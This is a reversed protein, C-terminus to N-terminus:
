DPCSGAGRDQPLCFMPVRELYSLTKLGTPSNAAQTRGSEQGMWLVEPKRHDQWMRIQPNSSPWLGLFVFPAPSELESCISHLLGFFWKVLGGRGLAVNVTFLSIFYPLKLTLIKEGMTGQLRVGLLLSQPGAAAAEAPVM